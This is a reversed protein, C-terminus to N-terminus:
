TSPVSQRVRQKSRTRSGSARPSIGSGDLWQGQATANPQVMQKGSHTRLLANFTHLAGGGTEGELAGEEEGMGEEEECGGQPVPKTAELRAREANPSVVQMMIKSGLNLERKKKPRKGGEAGKVTKWGDEVGAGRGKEQDVEGEAPREAPQSASGMPRDGDVDATFCYEGSGAVGAVTLLRSTRQSPADDPRRDVMSKAKRSEEM